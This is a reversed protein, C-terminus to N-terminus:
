PADGAARLDVRGLGQIEARVRMGPGLPIAEAVAGALLVHGPALREGRRSLLAAAAGVARTCGGLIAAASATAVVRGGISMAVGLGDLDAGPRSWPGCVFHSASANDAVVDELTFRFDRYRSDIIELAPAVAEVSPVAYPDEGRTEGLLFAVEAEIRPHIGSGFPYEGGDPIRMGTSLRGFIPESVNVQRMKAESTLGMKIGAQAEGSHRRLDFLMQQIRYAEDVTLDDLARTLQEMPVGTARADELGRAAAALRDSRSM